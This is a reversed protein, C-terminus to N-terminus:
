ESSSSLYSAKKARKNAKSSAALIDLIYYIDQCVVVTFVYTDVTAIILSFGELLEKPGTVGICVIRIYLQLLKAFIPIEM